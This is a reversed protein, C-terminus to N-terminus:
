SSRIAAFHIEEHGLPAKNIIDWYESPFENIFLRDNLQVGALTGNYDCEFTAAQVAREQAAERREEGSGFRVRAYATAVLTPSSFDLTEGYDNSVLTGRQITVLTERIGPDNM